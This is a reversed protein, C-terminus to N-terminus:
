EIANSEIYVRPVRASVGCCIEYPITDALRALEAASPGGEGFLVVTDGVQVADGPSGIPGLDIMFMDMCVTGAVPYRQGHIAVESRNTLVRRYGDAYGAGITAIRTRQPAIWRCGYSIPTGAEVTKIHTVRSLLQMVPRLALKPAHQAHGTYMSIGLRALWRGRQQFTNPHNFVADSNTIHLLPKPSPLQAAIAQFSAWQQNAFTLDLDDATAFHTWVGEVVVHPVAQLWGIVDLAEDPHVGIRGMGTDIKIHVHLPAEPTAAAAVARAVAVSSVTVHLDYRAYAALFGPLPAAFVLIKGSIGAARLARAEAITAVAFWDVGEDALARAVPVAGHGYADAKVVAMLETTGLHASLQRANHRLADLNIRAITTAYTTPDSM